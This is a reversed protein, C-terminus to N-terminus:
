AVGDGRSARAKEEHTTGLPPPKAKHAISKGINMFLTNISLLKRRDKNPKSKDFQTELQGSRLTSIGTGRPERAV